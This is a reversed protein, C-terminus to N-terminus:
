REFAEYGFADLDQRTHFIRWVFLTEDDYSYYIWYGKVLLRRYTRDLSSNAFMRGLDPLEALQDISTYLANVTSRASQPLGLEIALYVAIGEIDLQARPRLVINRM